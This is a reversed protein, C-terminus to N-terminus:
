FSGRKITITLIPPSLQRAAQARPSGGIISQRKTRPSWDRAGMLPALWFKTCLVGGYESSPRLKRAREASLLVKGQLAFGLLARYQRIKHSIPM